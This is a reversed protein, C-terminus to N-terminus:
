AFDSQTIAPVRVSEGSTLYITTLMGHMRGFLFRVPLKCRRAIRLNRVFCRQAGTRTGPM